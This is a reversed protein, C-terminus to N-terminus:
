PAIKNVLRFLRGGCPMKTLTKAACVAASVVAFDLTQAPSSFVHANSPKKNQPAHPKLTQPEEM